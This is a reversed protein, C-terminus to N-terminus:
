RSIVSSKSYNLRSRINLRGPLLEALFDDVDVNLGLGSAFIAHGWNHSSELPFERFTDLLGELDVDHIGAVIASYLATLAHEEVGSLTVWILQYKPQELILQIASVVDTVRMGQLTEGLLRAYYCCATEVDFIGFTSKPHLAGSGIGRPQVFLWASYSTDVGNPTFSALRDDISGVVVCLNSAVADADLKEILRCDIRMGPETEIVLAAAAYGAHLIDLARNELLKPYGANPQPKIGLIEILQERVDQNELVNPNASKRVRSAIYSQIDGLERSGGLEKERPLDEYDVSDNGKFNVGFAGCLFQLVEMRTDVWMGHGKSAIYTHLRDGVGLLRYMRKSEVLANRLGEIPFFDFLAGGVMYPKPAAATILDSLDLGNKMFGPTCQEADQALIRQLLARLETIYCCPAAAKIRDDYAGMYASMMGGGSNGSVAVREPDVEKRSLLYDLARCSEAIMYAAMHEGLVSLQRDVLCHADVANLWEEDTQQSRIKREGQGIPDYILVCFGNLVAEVGFSVYMPSAKGEAAHGCPFLIAPGPATIQKPYYFNASIYVGPLSEIRVHDIWYLGKDLTSTVEMVGRPYEPLPGICSKFAAQVHAQYEKAEEQTAVMKVRRKRDKLHDDSRRDLYQLFPNTRFDMREPYDEIYGNERGAHARREFESCKYDLEWEGGMPPFLSPPTLEGKKSNKRSIAM